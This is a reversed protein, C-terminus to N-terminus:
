YGCLKHGYRDTSINLSHLLTRRLSGKGGVGPEHLRSVVVCFNSPRCGLLLDKEGFLTSQEGEDLCDYMSDANISGFVFVRRQM